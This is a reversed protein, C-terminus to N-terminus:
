KEKKTELEKIKNELEKIKNTLNKIRTASQKKGRKLAQNETIYDTTLMHIMYQRTSSKSLSDAHKNALEELRDFQEQTDFLIKKAIEKKKETKEKKKPKLEEINHNIEDLKKIIIEDNNKKTM